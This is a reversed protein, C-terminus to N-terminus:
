VKGEFDDVGYLALKAQLEEREKTVATRISDCLRKEDIGSHRSFSVDHKSGSLATFVFNVSSIEISLFDELKRLREWEAAVKKINDLDSLKM